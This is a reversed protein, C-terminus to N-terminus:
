YSRAIKEYIKFVSIIITIFDIFLLSIFWIIIISGDILM